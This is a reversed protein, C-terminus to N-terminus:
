RVKTYKGNWTDYDERELWPGSNQLLWDIGKAVESKSGTRHPHHELVAYIDRNTSDLLCLMQEIPVNGNGSVPTWYHRTGGKWVHHLHTVTCWPALHCFLGEWKTRLGHSALYLEGVDICLSLDWDTLEQQSIAWLFVFASPDRRPGLQPKCVVTVGYEQELRKIRAVSSRLHHFGVNRGGSDWFYPFPVLVYAMKKQVATGLNRELEYWATEGRWLLGRVDDTRLLPTHLGMKLGLRLSKSVLYDLDALCAIDCIELAQTHWQFLEPLRSSDSKVTRTSISLIFSM